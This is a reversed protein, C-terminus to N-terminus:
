MYVLRRLIDETEDNLRKISYKTNQEDKQRYGAVWVGWEWVGDSGM